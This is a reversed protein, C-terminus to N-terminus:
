FVRPYNQKLHDMLARYERNLELHNKIGRIFYNAAVGLGLGGVFVSELKMGKSSLYAAAVASLGATISGFLFNGTQPHYTARREEVVKRLRDRALFHYTAGDYLNLILELNKGDESQAKVIRQVTM